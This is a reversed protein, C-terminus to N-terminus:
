GSRSTRENVSKGFGRVDFSSRLNPMIRQVGDLYIEIRCRSLNNRFGVMWIRRNGGGRERSTALDSSRRTPNCNVEVSNLYSHWVQPTWKVNSAGSCWSIFLCTSTVRLVNRVITCERITCALTKSAYIWKANIYVVSWIKGNRGILSIIFLSPLGVVGNLNACTCFRWYWM